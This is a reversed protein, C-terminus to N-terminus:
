ESSPPSVNKRFTPKYYVCVVVYGLLRALIWCLSIANTVVNTDSKGGFRRNVVLGCSAVDLFVVNKMTVSYHFVSIRYWTRTDAYHTCCSGISPESIFERYVFFDGSYFRVRSRLIFACCVHRSWALVRLTSLFSTLLHIWHHSDQLRMTM